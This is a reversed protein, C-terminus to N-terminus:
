CWRFASRLRRRRRGEPTTAVRGPVVPMGYASLVSLAEDETLTLRGEARVRAFTAAVGARDPSLALVERGPLEAAALRNQRDHWLHLAGRVAAEPTPFVAVGAKALAARQTGATAQGIWGVLVPAARPTNAAATLSTAIAAPDEDAVPAHVAVVTDM